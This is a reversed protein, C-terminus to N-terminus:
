YLKSLVDDVLKDGFKEGSRELKEILLKEMSDGRGGKAKVSFTDILQKTKKNYVKGEVRHAGDRDVVTLYIAVEYKATKSNSLVFGKHKTSERNAARIFTNSINRKLAKGGDNKRAFYTAGKVGDFTTQTYVFYYNVMKTGQAKASIATALLGVTMLAIIFLRKMTKIKKTVICLYHFIAYRLRM